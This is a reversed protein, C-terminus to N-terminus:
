TYIYRLWRAGLIRKLIGLILTSSHYEDGAGLFDGVQADLLTRGLICRPAQVGVMQLNDGAAIGKESPQHTWRDCGAV